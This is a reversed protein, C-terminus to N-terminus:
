FDVPAPADTESKPLPHGGADIGLETEFQGLTEEVKAQLEPDGVAAQYVRLMRQGFLAADELKQTVAAAAAGAVSSNDLKLQFPGRAM